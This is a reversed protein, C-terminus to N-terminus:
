RVAWSAGDQVLGLCVSYQRGGVFGRTGDIPDLVWHRGAAGGPSGGRDIIELVEPVSLSVTPEAQMIVSNVLATIRAAMAAGEPARLDASDEEAVMAINSGPLSRSLSWTVVAQAGYDAVTVPSSDPKDQKEGETLQRQMAQCLSSALRVAACAAELERRYPADALAPVGATVSAATAVQRPQPLPIMPRRAAALPAAAIVAARPAAAHM